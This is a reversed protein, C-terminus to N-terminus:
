VMNPGASGDPSVPPLSTTEPPFNLSDSDPGPGANKKKGHLVLAVVAIIIVVLAAGGVIFPVLNTEKEGSADEITVAEVTETETSELAVEPVEPAKSGNVEVESGAVYLSFGNAYINMNSSDANTLSSLYTDGALILNSDKDLTVSVSRASNAGNIIGMYYSSTLSMTLSSLNDLIIDGEIVQNTASLTVIGGNNGSTGWKGAEARLFASSADNNLFLNNELSINATTNTIFFTDGQNTTISSNKASLTGTGEEADGSMSQYIFINKYTESNGNLTNNTDVLTVGDLLVSNSGEIVVGESATATLEADKVSINATSYIAPSGTGNTLFSGGEITMTGGGRDSRIAASSNGKTSVTLAKASLTGGGTVMIGGSNNGDTTISVEELSVIGSSYAFVGNAHSGNTSVSGGSINLTGGSVLVAANTGYFDSSESSEDGSKTITPSDLSVTGNTVLLANEGGIESSYTGNALSTDTAIEMAGSRSINVSSDGGPAGSHPTGSPPNNQM